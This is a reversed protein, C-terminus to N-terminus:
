TGRKAVVAFLLSIFFSLWLNFSVYIIFVSLSELFLFDINMYAFTYLVCLMGNIMKLRVTFETKFGKDNGRRIKEIRSVLEIVPVGRSKEEQYNNFFDNVHGNSNVHDRIDHIITALLNDIGNIIHPRPLTNMEITLGMVQLIDIHFCHIKSIKFQQFM